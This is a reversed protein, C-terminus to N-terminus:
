REIRRELTVRYDHNRQGAMRRSQVVPRSLLLLSILSILSVVLAVVSVSSVLVGPLSASTTSTVRSAPTHPAAFTTTSDAPLACRDATTADSTTAHQQRMGIGWAILSGVNTLM